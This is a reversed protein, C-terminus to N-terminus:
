LRGRGDQGGSRLLRAGVLEAAQGAALVAVGDVGHLAGEPFMAEVAGPDFGLVGLYTSVLLTAPNRSVGVKKIDLDVALLILIM